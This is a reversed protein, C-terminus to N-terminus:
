NASKKRAEKAYLDSFNKGSLQESVFLITGTWHRIWPTTALYYGVAGHQKYYVNNIESEMSGDIKISITEITSTNQFLFGAPHYSNNLMDGEIYAHKIHTSADTMVIDLLAQGPMQSNFVYAYADTAYAALQAIAGGQSAGTTEVRYGKPFYMQKLDYALDMGNMMADSHKGYALYVASTMSDIDSFDTGAIALVVTKKLDNVFVRARFGSEDIYIRKLDGGQYHKFWKQPLDKKEANVYGSAALYDLREKIANYKKPKQNKSDQIKAVEAFYSMMAYPLRDKPNAWDPYAQQAEYSSVVPTQVTQESYGTVGFCAIALFLFLSRFTAKM